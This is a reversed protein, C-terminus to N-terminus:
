WHGIAWIDAERKKDDKWVALTKVQDEDLDGLIKWGIGRCKLLMADLEDAAQKDTRRFANM